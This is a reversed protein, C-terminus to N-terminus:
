RQLVPRARHLRGPAQPRIRGARLVARVIGSAAGVILRAIADARRARAVIDIRTALPLGQRQLQEALLEYNQAM